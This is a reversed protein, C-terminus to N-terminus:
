VDDIELPADVIPSIRSMADIEIPANWRTGGAVGASPTHRTSDASPRSCDSCGREM